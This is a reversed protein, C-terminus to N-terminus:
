MHATWQLKSRLSGLLVQTQGQSPWTHLHHRQKLRLPEPLVLYEPLQRHPCCSIYHKLLTHYCINALISWYEQRSFWGKRVSFGPLGCDVPSCLTHACSFHGQTCLRLVKKQRHYSQGLSPQAHLHCLLKAQPFERPVLHAPVHVAGATLTIARDSNKKQAEQLQHDSSRKPWDKEM